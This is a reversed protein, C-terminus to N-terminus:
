EFVRTETFLLEGSRDHQKCTIWNGITDYSYKFTILEPLVKADDAADSPTLDFSLMRSDSDSKVTESSILLGLSDYTYNITSHGFYNGIQNIGHWSGTQKTIRDEYSYEFSTSSSNYNL